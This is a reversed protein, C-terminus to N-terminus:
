EDNAKVKQRDSLTFGTGAEGLISKAKEEDFPFASTLMQIASDYPLTGSAVQQVISIMSSIQAGNLSVQQVTKGDATVNANSDDAFATDKDQDTASAVNSVARQVQEDQEDALRKIEAKPDDVISLTSLQTEKSVIGELTSATTAEDALNVPMNRTFQFSLDQWSDAKSEELITGVGFAIKYLQRLSKTFKREKSAAMNKMPLLKFQLAVGSSNGSFAEDNLNPVMTTQYILAILRDIMHEQMGDNDPKAIFEVIANVAEPDPSYLMHDNELDIDPKGDGDSDLDVGLIKLYSNDFYQNQNAKQSLTRDLADILTTAGDFVGQREENTYFEVAPVAELKNDEEEGLAYNNDFEIKVNSYHVVGSIADNEDFSYRVFALPKHAVSDDYVIFAQDPACYTIATESNEDTYLFAISRGYIDSQKSIENLKDQFSNTDNWHQLKDNDTDDDLTIKPPIGMFYGNFTEVIYKALNAVLRNDPGFGDRTETLFPHDGLYLDLNAKYHKAMEKNAEVLGRLDDSTM